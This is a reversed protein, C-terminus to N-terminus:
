ASNQWSAGTRLISTDLLHQGTSGGQTHLRGELLHGACGLTGQLELRAPLLRIGLLLGLRRQGSDKLLGQWHAGHNLAHQQANAM